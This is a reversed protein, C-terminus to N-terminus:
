VHIKTSHYLIASSLDDLQHNAGIELVEDKTDLNTISDLNEVVEELAADWDGSEKALIISECVQTVLGAKEEDLEEKTIQIDNDEKQENEEVKKVEFVDFLNRKKQCM